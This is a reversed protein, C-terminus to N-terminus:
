RKLIFKLVWSSINGWNRYVQVGLVLIIAILLVWFGKSTNKYYKPVVEIEQTITTDSENEIYITDIRQVKNLERVRERLSNIIVQMSDQKAKILLLTGQQTQKLQNSLSVNKGQAEELDRILVNGMSDCQLLLATTASDAKINIASDKKEIVTSNDTVSERESITTSSTRQEQAVKKPLSCSQVMWLFLAVCFAAALIQLFTKINM